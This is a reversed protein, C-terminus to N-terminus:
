VGAQPGDPQPLEGFAKLLGLGAHLPVEEIRNPCRRRLEAAFPANASPFSPDIIRLVNDPRANIWHRLYENIHEDRFSYGVVTVRFAGALERRFAQMLDLFPGRATLKNAAGFRIAPEWPHRVPPVNPRASVIRDFPLAGKEQPGSTKAFSWDISGHLKLLAIGPRDFRFPYETGWTEIDTNCAVDASRALVEIANDYNLTAVALREQRRLLSLIPRLHAVLEPREVWVIDALCRLVANHAERFAVGSTKSKEPADFLDALSRSIGSSNSFGRWGQPSTMLTKVREDVFTVLDREFRSSWFADRRGRDLEDAHPHWSNVFPNAALSRRQGLMGLAEVVEEIDVGDLPSRGDVSAQFLLGGIAFALARRERTPRPGLRQMVEGTMAFSTPIGAEASAGAGLLLMETM